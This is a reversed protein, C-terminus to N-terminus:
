ISFLSFKKSITQFKKYGVIRVMNIFLSKKSFNRFTLFFNFPVLNFLSKQLFYDYSIWTDKFVEFAYWVLLEDIASSISWLSRHSSQSQLYIGFVFLFLPIKNNHNYLVFLGRSKGWVIIGMYSLHRAIVNGSFIIWNIITYITMM